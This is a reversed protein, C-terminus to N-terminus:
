EVLEVHPELLLSSILTKLHQEEMFSCKTMNFEMIMEFVLDHIENMPPSSPLKSKKAVDQLAIDEKEAFAVIEEYTWAGNRISLIEQADPRKVLVEGKELIERCMRILRVLHAAHKCDYGYKKEIEARAPNRSKLWHQYSDWEQKAARYKKEAKLVEIFNDSFQQDRAVAEFLADETSAFQLGTGVPYPQNPNISAWVAKLMRSMGANLEIKTHEPLDTQEIMFADVEKTILAEAAGLQDLSLLKYEPLGYESRKPQVTPPNDLWKKHRKIRNLQSLAYGCFRAKAQKSLFLERKDLLQRMIPSCKIVADDHSFLIEIVSPNCQAALRCLKALEMVQMDADPQLLGVPYHKYVHKGGEGDVIQEFRSNLGIYSDLPPIAIGRYDWDSNPGSFGYSRSGSLVLFITRESLSKFNM